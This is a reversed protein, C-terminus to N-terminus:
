HLRFLRAILMLGIIGLIVIFIWYVSIGLVTGTLFAGFATNGTWLGSIAGYIMQGGFFIIAIVVALIVLKMFSRALLAVIILIVIGVISFPFLLGTLAVSFFFVGSVILGFIAYIFAWIVPFFIFIVALIALFKLFVHRGVM